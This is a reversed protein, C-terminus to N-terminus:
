RPWSSKPSAALSTALSMSTLEGADLLADETREEAGGAELEDDIMEAGMDEGLPYEDAGQLDAYPVTPAESAGDRGGAVWGDVSSRASELEFQESEAIEPALKQCMELAALDATPADSVDCPAPM